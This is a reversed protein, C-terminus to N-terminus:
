RVLIRRVGDRLTGPLARYAAVGANRASERFTHLGLVSTDRSYRYTRHIKGGFRRLFLHSGGMSFHSFGGGCAWKLAHWGILDNPRLRQFEPLSFNAAYEVVGNPCLRYFSGATV